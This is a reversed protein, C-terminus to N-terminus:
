NSTINIMLKSAIEHFEQSFENRLIKSPEHYSYDIHNLSEHFDYKGIEEKKLTTTFIM